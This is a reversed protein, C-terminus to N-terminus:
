PVTTIMYGDLSKDFGFAVRIYIDNDVVARGFSETSRM